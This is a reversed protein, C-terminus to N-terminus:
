QVLKGEFTLDVKVTKAEKLFMLKPVKMGWSVYPLVVSGKATCQNGDITVTMPVVIPHPKGILTFIGHVQLTSVGSNNLTGMFQKPAFTITPYKKVHLEGHKMNKDRASNGSNGSDAEVVISGTMAGTKRDFTVEGSGVKFVGNVEHFGGLSFQVQSKAPNIDYKTEARAVGCLAGALVACTLGALSVRLMKRGVGRRGTIRGEFDPSVSAFGFAM